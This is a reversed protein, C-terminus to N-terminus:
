LPAPRRTGRAPPPVGNGGNVSPPPDGHAAQLVDRFRGLDLPKTLFYDAERRLVTEREEGGCGATIVIVTVEPEGSARIQRLVQLGDTDPLYFDCVVTDPRFERLRQLGRRGSEATCVTYGDEVLLSQLAERAGTEDEIVLIRQAAM